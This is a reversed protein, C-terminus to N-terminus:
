AGTGPEPRAAGTAGPGPRLTVPCHGRGHGARRVSYAQEALMDQDGLTSGPGLTALAVGRDTVLRVYGSDIVFMRTAPEGAKFITEGAGFQVTTFREEIASLQPPGLGAFLPVRNTFQSTM